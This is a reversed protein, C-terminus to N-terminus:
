ITDICILRITNDLIRFYAVPNNYFFPSMVVLDPQLVPVSKNEYYLNQVYTSCLTPLKTLIIHYEIIDRCQM